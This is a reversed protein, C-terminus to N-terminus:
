RAFYPHEAVPPKPVDDGPRKLTIEEFLLDPTVVTIVPASASASGFIAALREAIASMGERTYPLTVSSSADSAAVIDRFSSVDVDDFAVNRVVEERGDPYIRYAALASELGPSQGGGGMIRMASSMLDSSAPILYPNGMRRVIIGYELGREKVLSVLRERLKKEKLGGQAALIVNTPSAGEGRRNGTSKLAGRAPNRTGLLAKM